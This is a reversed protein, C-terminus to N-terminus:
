RRSVRKNAGGIDVFGGDNGASAKCAVSYGRDAKAVKYTRGTGAAKPAGFHGRGAGVIVWSTTVETQAEPTYDSVSCRLTRGVRATGSIRVTAGVKTPGWAPAPDLIFGRYRAVDAFVSPLHDAGCRDGGWSVVGLQVPAAPSGTWLPGGSDGNCGSFLPQRGDADISCRMRAYFREGSSARYGKFLKACAADDITRLAATRLTSDLAAAESHGTGPAYRRGRGLILAEAPDAGGLRVIPVGTVPADLEVIAVDDLFNDGNRRRWNPHLAIHTPTRAVAGVGVAGLTAPSRGGVCHAATLVRTPTVLTGGCGSVSAFWPVASPQVEVGEVVAGAPVAAVCAVTVALLGALSTRRGRATLM